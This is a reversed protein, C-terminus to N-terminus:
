SQRIWSAPLEPFGNEMRVSTRLFEFYKQRVIYFYELVGPAFEEAKEFAQEFFSWLNEIMPCGAATWARSCGRTGKKSGEDPSNSM